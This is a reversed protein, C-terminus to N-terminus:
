KYCIFMIVGFTLLKGTEQMYETARKKFTERVLPEKDGVLSKFNPFVALADFQFDLDPHYFITEKKHIKLDKFGSDLIQQKVLDLERSMKFKYETPVDFGCEKLVKPLIVAVISIDEDGHGVFGAIGGPKLLRYAETFLKIREPSNDMCMNSLYADFSEDVFPMELFNCEMFHVKSEGPETKNEELIDIKSEPSISDKYRLTKKIEPTSKFKEFSIKIMKDAFDTSYYVFPSSSSHLAAYARSLLGTGCGM